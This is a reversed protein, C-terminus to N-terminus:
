GGGSNEIVFSFIKTEAPVPTLKTTTWGTVSDTLLGDCYVSATSDAVWRLKYKDDETFIVVCLYHYNIARM